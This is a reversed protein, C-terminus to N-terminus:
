IKLLKQINKDEFVAQIDVRNQHNCRSGDVVFKQYPLYGDPLLYDALSCGEGDKRHFQGIFDKKKSADKLEIYPLFEEGVYLGDYEGHGFLWLSKVYTSNIVSKAVKKNKCVIRNFRLNNKIFFNVLLDIGGAFVTEDTWFGFLKKLGVIIAHHNSDLINQHYKRSYEIGLSKYQHIEIISLITDKIGYM